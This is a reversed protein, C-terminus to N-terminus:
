LCPQEGKGHHLWKEFLSRLGQVVEDLPRSSDLVMFRDPEAEALSLYGNRVDDHFKKHQLELRDPTGSRRNRRDFATEIDCDFLFTADPWLSGTSWEHLGRLREPNIGRGYGQYALTADVYRDSLVWLGQELSPRILERVHQARSASYLLVETTSDMNAFSSDLLIDRIAEGLKTGGPERTRIHPISAGDLWESVYTLLTSKGCGDIGEFSLFKAPPKREM